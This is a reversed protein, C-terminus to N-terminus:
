IVAFGEYSIDCKEYNADIAEIMKFLYWIKLAGQKMHFMVLVLFILSDTRYLLTSIDKMERM